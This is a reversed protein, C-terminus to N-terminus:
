LRVQSVGTYVKVGTLQSICKLKDSLPGVIFKLILCGLYPLASMLGTSKVDLQLVKNMYVPAYQMFIQFGFFNGFSTIMCGIIVKDTLISGYPVNARKTKKEM